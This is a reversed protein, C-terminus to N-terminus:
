GPRGECRERVMSRRAGSSGAARGSLIGFGSWRPSFKGALTIKINVFPM